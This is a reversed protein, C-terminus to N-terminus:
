IIVNYRHKNYMFRSPKWDARSAGQCIPTYSDLLLYALICAIQHQQPLSLIMM